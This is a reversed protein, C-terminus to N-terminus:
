AIWFWHRCRAWRAIAGFRKKISTPTSTSISSPFLAALAPWWRRPGRAFAIKRCRQFERLQRTENLKVQSRGRRAVSNPRLYTVSGQAGANGVKAKLGARNKDM